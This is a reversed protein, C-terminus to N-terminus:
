RPPAFPNTQPPRSLFPTRAPQDKAAPGFAAALYDLFREREAGELPPMGQRETMWTLTEDWRHRSMRQNRILRASHCGTCFYFVEDRHAGDPFVTPEEPADEEGPAPGVIGLLLLAALALAGARARM